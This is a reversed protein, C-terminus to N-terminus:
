PAAMLCEPGENRANNVFTSVSEAVMQDAPYPQLLLKLDDPDQESPDLWQRYYDTELIAPMRNHVPQLLENPETTLIAATEIRENRHRWVEWIGAFAFPDGSRLHFHLPQKAKGTRQWEYFGDAPILCWRKTVERVV